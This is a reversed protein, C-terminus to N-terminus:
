WQSKCIPLPLCFRPIRVYRQCPSDSYPASRHFLSARCSKRDLLRKLIYTAALEHVRALDIPLHGGRTVDLLYEFLSNHFIRIEDGEIAVLSLIQDLLLVLDGSKMGLLKEIILNSAMAFYGVKKSRFYLISLVLCINELSPGEVGQFILAYLADLQAYPQDGKQPPRLRLIVELRDDPRHRPSRIYRIVTSAYIFHGSSREVLSTITEQDPWAHSLHQGLCHVRRIEVFEEELFKRIDMDADPDGSLDYRHPNLAQLGHDHSFVRTIHAEPRSTVLFRLPYPIQPIAGAVVRLLECQIDPNTCEDLGDIVILQPHAVLAGNSNLARLPEVLLERIQIRYNKTFLARNKRIRDAVFPGFESFTDVLNSVLTPILNEGNNRYPDSRCFFFSAALQGKDKYKESLSQALASKGVGAGGHLWFLSSPVADEGASNIWDEIMQIIRLRTSESCRPPDFRTGSDFAASHSCRKELEESKM